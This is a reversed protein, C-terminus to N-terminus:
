EEAFRPASRHVDVTVLDRHRDVQAQKRPQAAFHGLLAPLRVFRGTLM